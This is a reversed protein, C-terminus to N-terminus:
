QRVMGRHRRWDRRCRPGHLARGTASSAASSKLSSACFFVRILNQAAPTIMLERIVGSLPPLIAIKYGRAKGLSRCHTLRPIISMPHAKEAEPADRALFRAPHFQPDHECPRTARKLRVFWRTKVANRVHRRRVGGRSWARAPHRSARRHHAGDADPDDGCPNVSPSLARNLRPLSPVADGRSLGFLSSM